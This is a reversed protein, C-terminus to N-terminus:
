KLSATMLPHTGTPLLLSSLESESNLVCQCCAQVASVEFFCFAAMQIRGRWDLGTSAWDPTREEDGAPAYWHFIVPVALALAALGHVSQVM